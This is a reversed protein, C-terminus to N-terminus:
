SGAGPANDILRVGAVRAAVLLRLSDPLAGPDPPRLTLADRVVAYDVEFGADSLRQRMLAEIAAFRGPEDSASAGAVGAQADRLASALTRARSQDQQSLYRNRSSMALGSAERVIPCAAIRLRPFSPVGEGGRGDACREVMQSIVRLQQWDKEGFYAISPRFLEFLRAVVLCVGGFHGPRVRDELGPETATPPLPFAAADRAAAELGRPYIEDATPVFAAVAGAREALELDAELTRPYRAFDEAPGFQTPNVFITVVM